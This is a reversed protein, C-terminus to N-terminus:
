RSRDKCWTCLDNSCLPIVEHYGCLWEHARQMDGPKYGGAGFSSHGARACARGQEMVRNREALNREPDGYDYSM